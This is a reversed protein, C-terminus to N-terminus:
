GFHLQDARVVQPLDRLASLFAEDPPSDIEVL